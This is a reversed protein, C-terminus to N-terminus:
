YNTASSEIVSYTINAMEWAKQTKFYNRKNDIKRNWSIECEAINGLHEPQDKM